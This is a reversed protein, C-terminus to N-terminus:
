EEAAIPDLLVWWEDRGYNTAALERADEKRARGAVRKPSWLSSSLYSIKSRKWDALAVLEVALLARRALRLILVLDQLAELGLAVLEVAALALRDKRLEGGSVRHVAGDVQFGRVMGRVLLVGVDLVHTHFVEASSRAGRRM